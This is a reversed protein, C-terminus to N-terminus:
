FDDFNLETENFNELVENACGIEEESDDELEEVDDDRGPFMGPFDSISLNLSPKNNQLNAEEEEINPSAPDLPVSKVPVEVYQTGLEEQLHSSLQIQEVLFTLSAKLKTRLCQINKLMQELALKEKLLRREEAVMRRLKLARCSSANKEAM